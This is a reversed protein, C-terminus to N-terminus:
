KKCGVKLVQRETWKLNSLDLAMARGISLIKEGLCQGIIIWIKCYLVPVGLM